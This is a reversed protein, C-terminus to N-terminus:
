ELPTLPWGLVVTHRCVRCSAAELGRANVDWRNYVYRDLVHHGFWDKHFGPPEDCTFRAGGETPRLAIHGIAMPAACRPCWEERPGAEDPLVPKRPAVALGAVFLRRCQGCSRARVQVQPVFWWATGFVRRLIGGRARGGQANRACVFRLGRLM